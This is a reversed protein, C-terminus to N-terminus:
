SLQAACVCRSCVSFGIISPFHNANGCRARSVRESPNMRAVSERRLMRIVSWMDCRTNASIVCAYCMTYRNQPRSRRNKPKHEAAPASSIKGCAFFYTVHSHKQCAIGTFHSSWCSTNLPQLAASPLVCCRKGSSLHCANM